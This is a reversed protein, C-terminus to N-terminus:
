DAAEVQRRFLGSFASPGNGISVASPNRSALAATKCANRSGILVVVRYWPVVVTEHVLSVRRTRWAGAVLSDLLWAPNPGRFIALGPSSGPVGRNETTRDRGDYLM